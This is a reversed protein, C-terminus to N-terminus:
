FWNGRKLQTYINYFEQYKFFVCLIILGLIVSFYIGKNIQLDWIRKIILESILYPMIPLWIALFISRLVGINKLKDRKNGVDCWYCRPYWPLKYRGCYICSNYKVNNKIEDRTM